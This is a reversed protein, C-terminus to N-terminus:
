DLRINARASERMRWRALGFAAVLAAPLLILTWQV